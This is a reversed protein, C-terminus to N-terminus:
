RQWKLSVLSKSRECGSLFISLGHNLMPFSVRPLAISFKAGIRYTALVSVLRNSKRLLLIRASKIINADNSLM